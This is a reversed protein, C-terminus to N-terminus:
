GARGAHGARRRNSRATTAHPPQWDDPPDAFAGSCLALFAQRAIDWVDGPQEGAAARAMWTRTAAQYAATTSVAYLRPELDHEGCQLRDAFLVALRDQAQMVLHHQLGAVVPLTEVLSADLALSVELGMTSLSEIAALVSVAPHEDHPREEILAVGREIFRQLRDLAVAEKTPFYRYFTRLGVGAHQAIASVTTADYGQTEFLSRAADAIENRTLEARRARLSPPPTAQLVDAARTREVPVTQM